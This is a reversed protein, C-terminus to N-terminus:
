NFGPYNVSVRYPGTRQVSWTSHVTRGAFGFIYM